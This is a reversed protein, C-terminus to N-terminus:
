QKKDLDLRKIFGEYDGLQGVSKRKFPAERHWIALLVLDLKADPKFWLSIEKRESDEYLELTGTTEGKKIENM